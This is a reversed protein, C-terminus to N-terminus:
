IRREFKVSSKHHTDGIRKLGNPTSVNAAHFKVTSSMWDQLSRVENKRQKNFAALL